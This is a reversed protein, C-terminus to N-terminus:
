GKMHCKQWFLLARFFKFELKDKPCAARVNQKGLAVKQKAWNFVENSEQENPLYAEFTVQEALFDVQGPNSSSFKKSGLLLYGKQIGEIWLHYGKWM